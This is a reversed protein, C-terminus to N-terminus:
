LGWYTSRLTGPKTFSARVAFSITGDLLL